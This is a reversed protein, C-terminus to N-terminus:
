ENGAPCVGARRRMRYTATINSEPQSALTVFERRESVRDTEKCSM